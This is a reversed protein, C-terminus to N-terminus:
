LNDAVDNEGLGAKAFCKKVTEATIKKVPLGIWKVADVVPVCIALAYSSDAEEVNPIL